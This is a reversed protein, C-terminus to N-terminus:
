LRSIFISSAISKIDVLLRTWLSIFLSFIRILKSGSLYTVGFLQDTFNISKPDDKLNVSTKLINEMAVGSYIHGSNSVKM